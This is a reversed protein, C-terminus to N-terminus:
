DFWIDTNFSYKGYSELSEYLEPSMYPRSGDYLDSDVLPKTLTRIEIDGLKVVDDDTLLINRFEIM